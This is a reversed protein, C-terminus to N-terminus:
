SVTSLTFCTTCIIIMSMAGQAFVMWSFINQSKKIFDKIRRHIEICKVLEQFNKGYDKKFNEQNEGITNLRCSLEELLGTGANFFFVPLTDLAVVIGCCMLPNLFEYIAVVAFWYFNNEYDFPAWVKYSIKFPPNPNSLYNAWPAIGSSGVAFLCTGWYVLFCKHIQRSRAMLHKLTKDEGGGSLLILNQLDEALCIVDDTVYIFSLSKLILGLYTLLVSLVDSMAVLNKVKFMNIAFGLFFLQALIFHMFVGYVKYSRKVNKTQLFGAFKMIRFFNRLPLFYESTEM